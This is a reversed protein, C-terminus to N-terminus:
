RATRERRRSHRGRRVPHRRGQAGARADGISAETFRVDRGAVVQLVKVAEATVEKGIGDGPMVAINM